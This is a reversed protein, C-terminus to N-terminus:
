SKCKQYQNKGINKAIGQKIWNKIMMRVSNMSADSGKACRADELNFVTGLRNFATDNLGNRSREGIVYNVSQRAKNIRDCFYFMLTDMIYDAIVNYMDLMDDTQFQQLNKQLQCGHTQLYMEASEAGHAWHPIKDAEDINRILWEAYACLMYCCTYRMATVATRFRLRAKTENFDQLASLRVEELWDQCRQELLPLVVQGEMMEVLKAVKKINEQAIRSRGETMTLPAFTNDPTRAIALRTIEGNTYNSFARYLADPTGCLTMNWLVSPVLLGTSKGDKYDTDFKSGDYGCRLLVNINSWSSSRGQSLQDCESTYSFCHQGAANKLRTVAQSISTRLSLIRIKVKPDQPQEKSNKKSEKKELYEDEIRHQVRDQEIINHMWLEFLKDMKSKNSAAEGIIYAMLNLKSQEGHIDLSVKTALTGIMPGITILAPMAMSRPLGDLSDKVGMPLAGEPVKDIYFQEDIEEAEDLAQVLATNTYNEAKLAVMVQVLRAPMRTLKQGLASDIVQMKEAEPFGDYCPIVKGLLERDFGCIHRLNVALEFTLTNRNSKVPTKGNYHIEWWKDIIKEYPIGLYNAGEQGGRPSSDSVEGREDTVGGRPLQLPAKEERPLQLPAEEERPLQLPAEEEFISNDIYYIYEYCPVFSCRSVDKVVADINVGFKEAFARQCEEISKGEPRVAVVRLGKTSPTLHVLMIGFKDMSSGEKALQNLIQLYIKYPNEELDDIDIMYLGSEDMDAARRKGSRSYGHPVIVPLQKKLEGVADWDPDDGGALEAIRSCIDKVRESRVTKLFWEQTCKKLNHKVSEACSFM